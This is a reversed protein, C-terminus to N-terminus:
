RDIRYLRRLMAFIRATRRGRRTLSIKDGSETVMGAQVIGSYRIDYMWRLGRGESYATVMEKATTSRNEEHLMDILIRLSYGRSTLNYLQLWGGFFSAALSFEAVLFDLWSPGFILTQPLFGLNVPFVVYLIALVLAAACYIFVSCLVRPCGTWARFVFTMAAFIGISTATALLIGKM